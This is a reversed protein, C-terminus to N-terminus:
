KLSYEGSKRDRKQRFSLRWRLLFAPAIMYAIPKWLYVLDTLSFLGRIISRLQITLHESAQFRISSRSISSQIVRYKTFVGPLNAIRSKESIRIWVDYDQAYKYVPDYSGVQELVSKRIMVSPHFFPNLRPLVARLDADECPVRQVCIFAGNEDIANVATGLLGVNPNDDLFKVQQELREPLMIDDADLRAVYQGRCHSLGYNLCLTQKKNTEMRFLRIRQDSSAWRQLCTYTKDTSCDDVIIFEWDIFLQSTASEVAEDIYRECNYVAMLISVRPVILNMNDRMITIPPM